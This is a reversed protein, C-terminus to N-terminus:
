SVAITIIVPPSLATPKSVSEWAFATVTFSGSQPPTWSLAPAFSQRKEMSGQIWNLLVTVGTEDQIQVLYAAVQTKDQNNSLDATIQVQQDVSVANLSNESIDVIRLNTVTVRELPPVVTGILTTATIDLEDATTYPNPLTNDGYKATVTDGEAVRLRHGSSGDTITFFVTGEFIGTAANTETVTLAIGGSDSDSYVAVKFNDVSEPNLNMDQDIIRLVGTGSAPYSAELWQVEGINWRILSSGIVTDDESYEFSVSLGDDNAAPLYGSTPGEGKPQTSIVDNGSADGTTSDGDANHPFGTLIVEGTFIGTDAGTEVLKYNDLNSGRTSVKISDADTNGIDDYLNSDFNHDPAVITIYVKDTWTYVKQDLEITAGFNSTFLKVNVDEDEHGVYNAGSPGWDTYELEIEEGRELGADNISEPIEIIIQFIGTDIGTERLNSPEPDFAAPDDGHNGMTTTAAGSFWEILDLNYTEAQDNDLDFDQEILTLIMDSGIIYVSKDTQLVGNRLDFTASDTITNADGSADTPDNYVVTLIDGQLICHKQSAAKGNNYIHEVAIPKSEPCSNDEPGDTYAIKLDLEFIGSDPSTETIPGYEKTEDVIVDPGSTIKGSNADKAGATGLLMTESGRTVMVKVPGHKDNEAIKDQGSGSVDYDPDNVSVHITLIGSDLHRGEDTVLHDKGIGTAHIPFHSKSTDPQGFPVPYVTRGFDVSGTTARIGASDGVEITEGSKDRFDQYNVEMDLGTVSDAVFKGDKTICHEDPIQFNTTFVGTDRGTEQLSSIVDGLGDIPDTKGDDDIVSCGKWPKDDFTVDLVLSRDIRNGKEGIFTHDDTTSYAITDVNEYISDSVVTYIDIVDSDTNLDRDELTITVTDAVKYNDGDFSVVGSYTPADIQASTQTKVGQGDVDLYILEVADEDTMDEAVIIDLAVGITDLGTFTSPKFINIQNLMVYELTGSYIGTNTGTEEAELRYIADNYRTGDEAQGFTFVDFLINYTNKDIGSLDTNSIVITLDGKFADGKSPDISELGKSPLEIEGFSIGNATIGKVTIKTDDGLSSADFNFLQHVGTKSGFKNLFESDVATSIVFTPDSGLDNTGTALRLIKSFPEVFTNDANERLLKLNKKAADIKTKNDELDKMVQKNADTYEAGDIEDQIQKLVKDNHAISNNRATVADATLDDGNAKAEQNAKQSAKHATQNALQADLGLATYIAALEGNLGDIKTQLTGVSDVAKAIDDSEKVISVDGVKVGTAQELTFPSGIEVTPISKSGSASFDDDKLTNKNEDQDTINVTLPEGSGWDSAISTLDMKVLGQFFKVLFNNTTDNYDITFDLGRLTEDGTTKLVSDHANDTSSFVGSNKSTEQVTVMQGKFTTVTVTAPNSIVTILDSTGYKCTYQINYDGAKDTDVDRLDSTAIPTLSPNGDSDEASCAIGEKLFDTGDALHISYEVANSAPQSKKIITEQNGNAGFKIIDKDDSNPSPDIKLVGNDGFSAEKLTPLYDFTHEPDLKGNKDFMNYYTQGDGITSFTWIDDSTPDINLQNDSITLHVDAGHPYSSRDLSYSADDGISESYTLSVQQNSGGVNYVVKITADDTFDFTQIFPWHKPDVLDTNGYKPDRPSGYENLTKVSKLVKVKKDTLPDEDALPADCSEGSVFTVDADVNEDGFLKDSAVAGCEKGFDLSTGPANNVVRVSETDAVYAYWYGDTAQVMRLDNGDFTVDPEAKDEDTQSLQSDRVIVELIMPGGFKTASVYLNATEGPQASVDPMVGPIAITMGGALMITM